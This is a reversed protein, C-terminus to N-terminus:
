DPPMLELSALRLSTGEVTFDMVARGGTPCCNADADERWVSTRARLEPWRYDVGKWVGLGEPMQADLATRWSELEIEVWRDNDFRYLVDSNASGTGQQYGAAAVYLGDERQFIVPPEFGAAEFSWGIPSLTDGDVAFLILGASVGAFDTSGEQIQWALRQGEPGTAYGAAPAACGHLASGICGGALASVPSRAPVGRALRLEETLAGIYGQYFDRLEDATRAHTEGTEWDRQGADREAIWDAHRRTFTTPRGTASAVETWLEVVQRDLARLDEEACIVRGAEGLAATCDIAQGSTLVVGDQRAREEQAKDPQCASLILLAAAVAWRRM